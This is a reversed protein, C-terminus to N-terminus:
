LRTREEAQVSAYPYAYSLLDRLGAYSFSNSQINIKYPDFEALTTLGINTNFGFYYGATGPLNLLGVEGRQELALYTGTDAEEIGAFDAYGAAIMSEPVM